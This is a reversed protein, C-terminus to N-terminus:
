GSICSAYQQLAQYGSVDDVDDACDNQDKLIGEFNDEYESVSDAAETAWRQQALPDSVGEEFSDSAESIDVM